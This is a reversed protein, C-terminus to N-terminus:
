EDICKESQKTPIMNIVKKRKASSLLPIGNVYEIKIKADQGLYKKFQTRLEEERGFETDISIKFMYTDKSM